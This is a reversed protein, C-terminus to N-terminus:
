KFMSSNRGSFLAKYWAKTSFIGTTKYLIERIKTLTNKAIENNCTDRTPFPRCEENSCAQVVEGLILIFRESWILCFM